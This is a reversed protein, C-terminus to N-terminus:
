HHEQHHQNLLHHQHLLHGLFELGVPVWLGELFELSQLILLLNQSAPDLPVAQDVPIRQLYLILLRLLLGLIEQVAQVM